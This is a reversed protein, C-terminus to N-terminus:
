YKLVWSDDLDIDWGPKIELVDKYQLSTEPLFRKHFNGTSWQGNRDTDLIAKLQYKEPLLQRFELRTTTDIIRQEVVSKKSNLLQVVVQTNEPPVITVFLNGLDKEQAKRFKVSISDNTKGRISFFISDPLNFSGSATDDPSTLLRYAMGYEDTQEFRVGNEATTVIPESFRLIFDEGPMLMNNRLNNTVKLSKSTKSPRQKNDKYKLNFVTSEDILTDYQINVRLSDMINPTFYWWLTDSAKSWVEVIKFSDDLVSPTVIKVDNAPHRFVFRLLGDEILKKELLMQTTDIEKFAYLIYDHIVSNTTSDNKTSVLTDIFAVTENPMDYYYNANMDNLAFVLFSKDPLGNFHFKGDKDTKTIFDPSRRIPQDFLSDCESDYLSVFCDALPKEDDANLVKGALTLTDLHDGTSFSYVYDKFQNGEHLDKIAAGFDITYTTNPLLEEKFKVVVTKGSLKIDPKASLLPSFLVNQNANNLTVYEDFTIEIKKGNFGTSRNAPVAETVKPPTTDKAGGTPAVVNACQTLLFPALFLLINKIKGM